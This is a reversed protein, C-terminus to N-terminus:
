GGEQVHRDSEASEWEESRGKVEDKIESTRMKTGSRGVPKPNM